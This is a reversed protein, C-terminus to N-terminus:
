KWRQFFKADIVNVLWSRGKGIKYAERVSLISVAIVSFFLIAYKTSDTDYYADGLKTLMWFVLCYISSSFLFAYTLRKIKTM